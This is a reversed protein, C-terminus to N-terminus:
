FFIVEMTTCSIVCLDRSETSALLEYKHMIEAMEDSSKNLCIQDQGNQFPLWPVLCNFKESLNKRIGQYVCDDFDMEPHQICQIPSEDGLTNESIEYM